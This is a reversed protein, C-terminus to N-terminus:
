GIDEIGKKIRSITEEKGPIECIVFLDPGYKRRDPLAAASENDRWIGV